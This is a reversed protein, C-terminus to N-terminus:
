GPKRFRFLLIGLFIIVPLEIGFLGCIKSKPKITATMVIDDKLDAVTRNWTVANGDINGNSSIVEGPFQFKFKLTYESMDMTKPLTSDRNVIYKFNYNDGEKTWSGKVKEFGQVESIKNFDKFDIGLKIHTTSDSNNFDRKASKVEFFESTFRNKIEPEYFVMGGVINGLKLSGTHTSYDLWMNGSGDVNLTTSQEVFVCGNIFVLMSIIFIFILTKQTKM